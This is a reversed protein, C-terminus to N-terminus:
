RLFPTTLAAVAIFHLVSGLVILAPSVTHAFAGASLRPLLAGIAYALVGAALWCRTDATIPLALGWASAFPLATATLLAYPAAQRMRQRLPARTRRAGAHGLAALAHLGLLVCVFVLVSASLLLPAHAALALLLVSGPIAFFLAGFLHLLIRLRAADPVRRLWHILTPRAPLARRRNWAAATLAPRAAARRRETPDAVRRGPM